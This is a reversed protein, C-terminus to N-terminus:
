VGGGDQQLEGRQGQQPDFTESVGLHMPSQLMDWGGQYGLGSFLM